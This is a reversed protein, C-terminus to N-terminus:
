IQILLQYLIEAAQARNATAKPAFSNDALGKIIGAQQMASVAEQAYDAIAKADPFATAEKTPQLTLEAAALARYTMVIMDQRSIEEQVGFSGDKKGKVIGLQHATMVTDYYWEGKKVDNFPNSGDKARLDLTRVLMQVFEARTVKKKPAFSDASVGKVIDRAALASISIKASATQNLDNFKVQVMVAAYKSFHKAKFEVAGKAPNYHANKIIELSGNDSIYYIVVQGPNEGPKLTYPISVLVAKNAGFDSIRKGGVSLNFDFVANDGVKSRIGEPLSSPDVKSVSIEVDATQNSDTFLSSPLELKVWGLDIQIQKVGTDIAAKVQKVPMKVVVSKADTPLKFEFGILGAKVKKLAEAFSQESVNITVNGNADVTLTSQSASGSGSGGSGPNSGQNPGKFEVVGLRSTNTYSQGTPDNWIFVSDRSGGDQDNNVQLDFGILTGAAPTIKDLEIAAEVVYGGSILKTASTYNNSTAHGGVTKVNKFNIRYQGDDDEYSTTKGNNQDVFIEVSDQEYPNSPADSLVSDTVVAYVYLKKNDWMTRFQAKAVANNNQEVKVDTTYVPADAWISDMEGDITPTGYAAIALKTAEIYTLVGYGLSDSDQAGRPDSWSVIIGNGGQETGDNIGKDTIRVDFKVQKGLTGNLPIATELVYGGTVETISSHNRPFILKQIGNNDVFLEIQDTTTNTTDKVAVRVYLNQSDWLTKVDAELTSSQETKMAPVTNWVSDTVRDIVPTGQATNAAKATLPLHSPTLTKIAEVMGWYAYKAQYQKNFPFPADQRTEGRNHLWTHDDAVGWLTVNSIWGDPNGAAIGMNDLRVLEKFLEKFRYGQKVLIDEPIPDYSTNGSTYISVDLETLQNDFGAEAFKRISDSIQQISPGSINIHTQHGVGDIPVGEGKLKTVLNFLFDRKKPDHTNFDNIYLKANPLEQHAVNFATKIFDTGTLRFWESRRMGDPQGEDIVENVVDIANITVDMDKFHRLVTQIYTTLRNLVLQKNEPTAALPKNTADKFMWDAAQEHWALTHLRFNLNHDKAYNAIKDPATWNWVNESPNLSGPKTSNEAVISSYHYDLLKHVEGELQEPEVAAGIKFNDAYLDKLHDINTQIPLPGAVAGIFSLQFDDMYFSRADAYSNAVEVYANLVSPTTAVTFTGTLQVWNDPTVTVNPSVNTFSSDGSQVSLRLVTSSQGPAMKVWASLSYKNNKHMNGLVNLLPGDYQETVTTLLSQTGGTTHNDATSISINGAGNRRVWEGQGDEFDSQFGLDTIVVEDIFIDATSTSTDVSELWILFEATKSPVKYNKLEFTTWATSTVEKNGILWPYIENGLAPSDVKSALHLTDSGAGLRVKLSLDYTHGSQMLSTLNKSPSSGRSVRDTFKLSKTGDSAYTSSVVATGAPGWGLKSWGGVDDDEFSQSLVVSGSPETSPTPGGIKAAFTALTDNILVMERGLALKDSNPTTIGDGVKFAIKIGKNTAAQKVDANNSGYPYALVWPDKGTISKLFANGAAIDAEAAVKDMETTLNKHSQTHNQLDLNPDGALEQLQATTMGYKNDGIWDSVIFQIAKMNNQKLVPWANNYFDPTGDDFTLLIPKAPPTDIGSIINFYQQASLTTYGNDVLYKMQKKFLDTTTQYDNGSEAIDNVKHYLVVPVKVVPNPTSTPLSVLKVTFTDVYYDVTANDTSQVYVQYGTARDDVKFQSQILVWDAATVSKSDIKAYRVPDNDPLGEQSISLEVTASGVTGEKLKAYISFDYTAGPQLASTANIGPGNWTATRGTTMLSGAGSQATNTSQAVTESGRKFWSDTGTDFNSSMVTDGVTAANTTSIGWGQPAIIAISLIIALLTHLKKWM